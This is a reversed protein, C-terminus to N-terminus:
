QTAERAARLEPLKGLAGLILRAAQHDNVRAWNQGPMRYRYDYAQAAKVLETMEAETVPAQQGSM